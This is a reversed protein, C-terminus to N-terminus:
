EYVELSVGFGSRFYNELVGIEVSDVVIDELMVLVGANSETGPSFIVSEVKLHGHFNTPPRTDMGEPSLFSIFAGPCPVAFLHIDGFLRGYASRERIFVSADISVKM